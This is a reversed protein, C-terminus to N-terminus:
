RARFVDGDVEKAKISLSFRRDSAYSFENSIQAFGDDYIEYFQGKHALFDGPHLDITIDGDTKNVLGIEELHSIHVDATLNGFAKKYPGVGNRKTPDLVEVNIRGFVEIEEKWNKKKAEGYLKHARTKKMDVRYLIFSEQLIDVTLEKGVQDLFKAEAEGFFLGIGKKKSLNENAENPREGFEGFGKSM